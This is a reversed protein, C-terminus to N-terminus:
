DVLLLFCALVTLVFSALRRGEWTVCRAYDQDALPNRLWQSTYVIHSIILSFSSLVLLVLKVTLTMQKELSWQELIEGRGQRSM